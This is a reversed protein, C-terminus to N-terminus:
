TPEFTTQPSILVNKFINVNKLSVVLISIFNYNDLYRTQLLPYKISNKYVFSM